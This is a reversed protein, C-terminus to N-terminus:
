KTIIHEVCRPYHNQKNEPACIGMYSVLLSPLSFRSPESIMAALTTIGSTSIYM